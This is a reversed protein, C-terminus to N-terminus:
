SDRWQVHKELRSPDAGALSARRRMSADQYPLPPFLTKQLAGSTTALPCNRVVRSCRVSTTLGKRSDHRLICFLTHLSVVQESPLCDTFEVQVMSPTRERSIPHQAPYHLSVWVPHEKKRKKTLRTKCYSDGLFPEGLAPSGCVFSILDVCDICWTRFIESSIQGRGTRCTDRGAGRGSRLSCTRREAM